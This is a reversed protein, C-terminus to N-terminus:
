VKFGITVIGAADLADLVAPRDLFLTMGTQVALTKAKAAKSRKRSQQVHYIM